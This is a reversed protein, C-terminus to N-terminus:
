RINPARLQATQRCRDIERGGASLLLGAATSCVARRSGSAIRAARLTLSSLIVSYMPHCHRLETGYGHWSTKPAMKHTFSQCINAVSIDIPKAAPLYIIM